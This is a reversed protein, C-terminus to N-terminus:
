SETQILILLSLFVMVFVNYALCNKMKMLTKRMPEGFTM